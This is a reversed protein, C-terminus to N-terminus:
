ITFAFLFTLSTGMRIIDRILLKNNTYPSVEKSIKLVNLLMGIKASMAMSKCCMNCVDLSGGIKTQFTIKCQYCVKTILPPLLPIAFTNKNAAQFFGSIKKQDTNGVKSTLCLPNTNFHRKILSAVNTSNSLPQLCIKCLVHTELSEM